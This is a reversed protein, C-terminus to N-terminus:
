EGTIYGYPLKAFSHCAFFTAHRLMASPVVHNAVIVENEEIEM